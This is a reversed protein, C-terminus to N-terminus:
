ISLRGQATRVHGLEVSGCFSRNGCSMGGRKRGQTWSLFQCWGQLEPREGEAPASSPASPLRMTFGPGPSVAPFAPLLPGSKNSGKKRPGRGSLGALPVGRDSSWANAGILPGRQSQKIHCHTMSDLTPPLAAANLSLYIATRIVLMHTKCKHERFGTEMHQRM